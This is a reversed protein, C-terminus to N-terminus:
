PFKTPIHPQVHQSYSNRSSQYATTSWRTLLSLAWLIDKRWHRRVNITEHALSYITTHGDSSETNYCTFRFHITPQPIKSLHSTPKNRIKNQTNSSNAHSIKFLGEYGTHITLCGIEPIILRRHSTDKKRTGWRRGREFLQITPSFYWQIWSVAKYWLDNAITFSVCWTSSKLRHGKASASTPIYCM